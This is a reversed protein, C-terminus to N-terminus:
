LYVSFGYSNPSARPPITICAWRVSCLLTGEDEDDKDSDEDSVEDEEASSVDSAVLVAGNDEEEEEEKELDGEPEEAVGQLHHGKPPAFAMPASEEGESGLENSSDVVFFTTTPESVFSGVLGPANGEKAHSNAIKAKMMMMTAAGDGETASADKTTSSAVKKGAAGGGGGFLAKKKGNSGGSAAASASSGNTAKRGGV